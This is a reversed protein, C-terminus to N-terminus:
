GTVRVRCGNEGLRVDVSEIRVPSAADVSEGILLGEVAGDGDSQVVARRVAFRRRAIEELWAVFRAEDSAGAGVDVRVSV